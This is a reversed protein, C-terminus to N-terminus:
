SYYGGTEKIIKWILIYKFRLPIAPYAITELQVANNQEFTFICRERSRQDKWARECFM